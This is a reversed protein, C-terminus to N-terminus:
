KAQHLFLNLGVSVPTTTSVSNYTLDIYLGGPVYIAYPTNIGQDGKPSVNWGTVYSVIPTGPPSMIGDVDVVKIGVTDGMTMNQTYLNGGVISLGLTTSSTIKYYSSTATGSSAMFQMGGGKFNFDPIGFPAM